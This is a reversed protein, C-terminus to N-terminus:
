FRGRLSKQRINGSVDTNENGEKKRQEKRSAKTGLKKLLTVQSQPGAEKDKYM